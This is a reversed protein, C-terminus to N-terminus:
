ALFLHLAGCLGAGIILFWSTASRFTNQPYFALAIHLFVHVILFIDLGKKFVLKSEPSIDPSFLSYFIWIYLPVHTLTFVSYGAKDSMWYTLPFIRWEKNYIADMEHTLIFALGAYFLIDVNM